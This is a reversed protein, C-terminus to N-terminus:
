DEIFFDLSASIKNYVEDRMNVTVSNKGSALDLEKTNIKINLIDDTKAFLYKGNIYIEAKTPKYKGVWSIQLNLDEDRVLAEVKTNILSIKPMKDPTHIDDTATPLIPRDTEVFSSNTKKYQEVWNRVGYEWNEFQSDASPDTPKPGYPDNKDIWYLISHVNNFVMEKKTELPTYETAVKNSITDIWYSEGGQWIGRFVPKLDPNTPLPDFFNNPPYTKAFQSMYAGWVPSIILGAVNKQMPSNDNNGAWAGVVIDATYGLTWVDRYDNTTGTKIAVQRGVSDAIPKLSNMRFQEDALISTVKRAVEVDLAQTPTNKAKELENGHKDKIELVIRYPNYVGDNAFGSYASTLELLSVEGGGLVLTLGYRDPDNLSTIGLSRTIQLVKSMGALYLAKVAPINRSQALAQRISMPGEYIEDYNQPSYCIEEPDDSENKATSDPNCESSFETKTDFLITEPTYGKDFLTGYVFPKFTSGPQRKAIAINFNGDITPDFYNKSGILALVDGSKVDIAVMATNSANFNEALSDAYKNVTDEAMQQKEYDLTTIVKLGGGLMVEEGYKKSIYERVMMVFHPAKINGAGSPLFVVKEKLAEKYEKEDILNLTRMRGLVMKQRQDLDEKHNGYPSYYTPAQPIAAIYAAEALTVNKAPKGFFRQTAEEVGYITGGYPAENFYTQLIIEKSVSQTLKIALVWEKIKRTITKDQTLLSNKIVQQTITSAGQEYEGSVINAVVARIIAVPEIGINEYFNKDEIAIAAKQIYLSIDSLPVSTRKINTGTDFLLVTGTRDYIKTSEIVQRTEFSGLDPIPLFSIWLAVSGVGLLIISSLILILGKVHRMKKHKKKTHHHGSRM